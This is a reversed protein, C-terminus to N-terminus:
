KPDRKLEVNIKSLELLKALEKIADLIMFFNNIKCGCSGSEYIIVSIMKDDKSWKFLDDCEDLEDELEKIREKKKEEDMMRQREEAKEKEDERADKVFKKSTLDFYKVKRGNRQLILDRPEGEYKPKEPKPQEPKPEKEQKSIKEQKPLKAPKEEKTTIKKVKEQKPPKPPALLDVAAYENKIKDKRPM